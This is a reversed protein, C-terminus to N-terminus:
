ARLADIRIMGWALIPHAVALLYHFVDIRKLPGITGKTGIALGAVLYLIVGAVAAITVRRDHRAALAGAALILAMGVVGPVVSYRPTLWWGVLGFAASVLYWIPRPIRRGLALALFAAGLVPVAIHQSTWTM